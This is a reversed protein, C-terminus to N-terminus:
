LGAHTARSGGRRRAAHCAIRRAAFCPRTALATNRSSPDVGLTLTERARCPAVDAGRGRAHHLRAAPDRGDRRPVHHLVMRWGGETLEFVNTVSCRAGLPEGLRPGVLEVVHTCPSTTATSPRVRHRARAARAGGAFIQAWGERVADFGVLRPGSPHVCVVDDTEAWVAMMAALDRASSRTTSRPRPTTPRPSLAQQPARNLKMPRSDEGCNYGFGRM